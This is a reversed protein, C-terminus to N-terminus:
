FTTITVRDGGRMASDHACLGVMTWNASTDADPLAPREGRVGSLFAHRIPKDSVTTSFGSVARATAQLSSLLASAALLALPAPRKRLETCCLLVFLELYASRSSV